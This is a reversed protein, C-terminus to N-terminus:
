LFASVKSILQIASQSGCFVSIVRQEFELEEILGAKWMAEKVVKTLAIYEVETTSLAVVKQM